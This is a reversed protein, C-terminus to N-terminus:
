KRSIGFLVLDLLGELFDDTVASQEVYLRQLLAGSVVSMVLPINVAPTIEGRSIARTFVQVIDPTKQSQLMSSALGRIEPNNGEGLLVRLVGKGLPSETFAVANRIICLFDSSFSGTNSIEFHDSATKRLADQVLLRKVPWRRYISTKNLGALEAIEPVSLLEYGRLALQELTVQFVRAIVPAGRRHIGIRREILPQNM